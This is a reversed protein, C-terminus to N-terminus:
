ATKEQSHLAARVMATSLLAIPGAFLLALLPGVMRISLALLVLLAIIGLVPILNRGALALASVWLDRDSGARLIALPYLPVLGIALITLVFAQLAIPAILWAQDQNATHLGITLVLVTAVAAPLFALRIGRRASARVSHILELWGPTDGELIEHCTATLGLWTPGLLLAATLPGLPILAVFFLGTISVALTVLLNMAMMLPFEAWILRAIQALNLRDATAVPATVITNM